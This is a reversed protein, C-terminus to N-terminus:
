GSLDQIMNVPPTRLACFVSRRLVRRLTNKESDLRRGSCIPEEANDTLYVKDPYKEAAATATMTVAIAAITTAAPIIAAASGSFSFFSSSGAAAAM